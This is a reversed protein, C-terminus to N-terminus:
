RDGREEEWFAQSEEKSLPKPQRKLLEAYYDPLPKKKKPKPPLARLSYLPEGRDTIIIEGFEEIKRKVGRFDTRLERISATNTSM